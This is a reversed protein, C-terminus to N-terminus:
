GVRGTLSFRFTLLVLRLAAAVPAAPGRAVIIFALGPRAAFRITSWTQGAPVAYSQQATTVGGVQVSVTQTVAGAGPAGGPLLALARAATVVIAPTTPTGPSPGTVASAPAFTVSPPSETFTWGNPYLVSFLLAASAYGEYGGPATLSPEASVWGVHTAGQVHYWGGSAGTQGLYALQVGQAVIGLVRGALDPAARMNVGDPALVTVVRPPPTPTPTPRPTATPTATPTPRPTPAAGCGALWGSGAVLLVVLVAPRVGPRM